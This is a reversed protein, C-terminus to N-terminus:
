QYALGRTVPSFVGQLVRLKHAFLSRVALHSKVFHKEFRKDYDVTITVSVNNHRPELKIEVYNIQVNLDKRTLEIQGRWCISEGAIKEAPPRNNPNRVEPLYEREFYTSSVVSWITDIDANISITKRYISKM